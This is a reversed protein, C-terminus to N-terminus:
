PRSEPRQARAPQSAVGAPASVPAAPVPEAVPALRRGMQVGLLFLLVLLALLSAGALWVLRPTLSFHHDM